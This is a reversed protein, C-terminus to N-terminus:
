QSNCLSLTCNSAQYELELIVDLLTVATRRQLDKYKWWDVLVLPSFASSILGHMAFYLFLINTNPM